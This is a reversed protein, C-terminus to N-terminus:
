IHIPSTRTYAYLLLGIPSSVHFQRFSVIASTIEWELFVFESISINRPVLNQNIGLIKDGLNWEVRRIGGEYM